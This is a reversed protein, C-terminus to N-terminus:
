LISVFFSFMIASGSADDARLFRLIFFTILATATAATLTRTHTATILFFEVPAALAQM